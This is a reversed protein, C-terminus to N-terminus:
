KTYDMVVKINKIKSPLSSIWPPSLKVLASDINPYKLLIQNFDKKPKNLLDTTFKDADLKWVIKAPGSLNFDINKVSDFLINEKNVLSFTLDKINPIYVDSNDYNEINDKSIKQTLKQENFIIGYLTGPLTLVVSGDPSVPGAILDDTKIFTADKYLLFGPIQSSIENFLKSELITKLEGETEIKQLDSVQRSKGVIGGTIDGMSRGYFKEYKATGKFGFIKFDLPSSNYDAGEKEAYIDVSVQGPTGNKSMGPIVVKSIIKYIKGNSGDLRTDVSLIQSASSYKNYLIVTGKAKEYFDGEELFITKSVDRSIHTLEFPLTDANEDLSASLNKNLVIDKTKLSVSVEAKAFLFSFAFFCFIISALAVLWLMYRYKNGSPKTGVDALYDIRETKTPEKKILRRKNNKVRVMDELLHKSM